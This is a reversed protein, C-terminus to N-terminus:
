KGAQLGGYWHAFCEYDREVTYGDVRRAHVSSAAEDAMIYIKMADRKSM